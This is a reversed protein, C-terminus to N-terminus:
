SLKFPDTQRNNHGNRVGLLPLLLGIIIILTIIVNRVITFSPNNEFGLLLQLVIIYDLGTVSPSGLQHAMALSTRVAICPCVKVM